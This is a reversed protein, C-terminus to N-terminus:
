PARRPQDDKDPETGSMGSLRPTRGAARLGVALLIGVGLWTLGTLQAAVNASWMVYGLILLGCVPVVLHRPARSGGKVVYYGLVSVHLLLFATLAGFNGFPAIPVMFVLGYILLDWFSLSGKLEQAYGFRELEGTGREEAM